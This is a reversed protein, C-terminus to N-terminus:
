ARFVHGRSDEVTVRLITEPSRVMAETMQVYFLLYGDLPADGDRLPKELGKHELSDSAHLIVSGSKGHLTLTDPLKTLQASVISGGHEVAMRWNTAISPVGINNIRGEVAIGTLQSDQDLVFIYGGLLSLRFDPRPYLVFIGAFVIFLIVAIAAITAITRQPGTSREPLLRRDYIIRSGGQRNARWSLIDKVGSVALICMFVGALIVLVVAIPKNEYAGLRQALAFTALSMGLGGSYKKDM